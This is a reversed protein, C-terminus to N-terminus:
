RAYEVAQSERLVTVRIQGPYSCEQEIKQAIKKSLDLAKFDDVQGSDVVVRVERGASLIYTNVVNPFSNGINQLDAMKQNYSDVTSRRAGPRAGSVADAAIVLYALNTQPQEDFHHARVAHVIENSEGNKQIFDAGIVAHGGEMSHDMSKGIDHLLGARRGKSQEEGLEQSLLGCLWGVEACHFHQNQSFSYRYRLAGLMNIIEPHFDKMGLEKAVRNGDQRIKRFLDRKTRNIIEQIRKENITREHLLKELSGRALERRVPDFGLCSASNFQENISIDIGCIKELINLNERNNGVVRLRVEQNPFHVLGIGREECYPRAFRNIAVNLHYRAIKEADAEVENLSQEALRSARRRETQVLDNRIEDFLIDKSIASKELLKSTYDQVLHSCEEKLKDYKQQRRSLSSNQNGLISSQRQFLSEKEGLRKQLRSEAELLQANLTQNRDETKRIDKEFQEQAQHAFEEVRNQSERMYEEAVSEAEAIIEGAELQAERVERQIVWRRLAWSSVIGVLFAGFFIIAPFEM